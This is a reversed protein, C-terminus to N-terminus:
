LSYAVGLLFLVVYDFEVRYQGRNLPDVYNEFRDTTKEGVFPNLGARVTLPLQVQGVDIEVGAEACLEITGVSKTELVLQERAPIAQERVEASSGLGLSLDFGLGGVVRLGDLVELRYKGTWPVRLTTATLLVERQQEGRREFGTATARAYLLGIEFDLNPILDRLAYTAGIVFGAGTFASGALITDDGPVDGPRDLVNYSAGFRFAVAHGSRRGPDSPGSEVPALPSPGDGEPVLPVIEPEDQACVPAAAAIVAWV